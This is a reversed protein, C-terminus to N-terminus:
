KSYFLNLNGSGLVVIRVSNHYDLAFLAPDFTKVYVKSPIEKTNKVKKVEPKSTAGYRILQNAVDTGEFTYEIATKKAKNMQNVVEKSSKALLIPM